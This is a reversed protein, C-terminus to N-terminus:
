ALSSASKRSRNLCSLLIEMRAEPNDQGFLVSIAVATNAQRQQSVGLLDQIQGGDLHSLDLGDVVVIEEEDLLARIISPSLEGTEDIWDGDEDETLLYFKGNHLLSMVSPEAVVVRDGTTGDIAWACLQNIDEDDLFGVPANFESYVSDGIVEVTMVYRGHFTLKTTGGTVEKSLAFPPASFDGNPFFNMM